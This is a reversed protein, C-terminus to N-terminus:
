RAFGASTSQPYKALIRARKEAESEVGASRSDMAFSVFAGIAPAVLRAIENGGLRTVKQWEILASLKQAPATDLWFRTERVIDLLASAKARAWQRPTVRQEPIIGTHQASYPPPTYSRAGPVYTAITRGQGKLSEISRWAARRVQRSHEPQTRARLRSLEDALTAHRVAMGYERSARMAAPQPYALDSSSALLAQKM